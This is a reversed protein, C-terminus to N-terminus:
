ERKHAMSSLLSSPLVTDCAGADVTIEIIEWGSTPNTSMSQLGSSTALSTASVAVHPTPLDLDGVRRASETLKIRM